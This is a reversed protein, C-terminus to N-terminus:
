KKWDELDELIDKVFYKGVLMGNANRTEREEM